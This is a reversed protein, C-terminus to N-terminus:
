IKSKIWMLFPTRNDPMTKDPGYWHNTVAFSRGSIVIPEKYYRQRGTNDYCYITLEDDSCNLPVENLIAFNGSCQFLRRCEDASTLINISRDDLKGYNILLQLCSYAFQKNPMCEINKEM